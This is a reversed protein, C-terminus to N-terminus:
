TKYLSIVERGEEFVMCTFRWSLEPLCFCICENFSFIHDVKENHPKILQFLVISRLNKTPTAHTNVTMKAHCNESFLRLM